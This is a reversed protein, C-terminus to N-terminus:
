KKGLTGKRKRIELGILLLYILLGAISIMIGVHFYPLTYILDITHKGPEILLGMFGLNALLLKAEKGDVTAIWGDDYPISFFLLKKRAPHITGTIHSQRFTTIAFTDEKMNAIDSFHENFTYNKLTDSLSLKKLDKYTVSEREVAVFGKFLMVEKGNPSIKDFEGSPIYADYTFGLPLFHKNRMVTVDGFRAISDYMYQYYSDLKQRTLTYKFSAFTLLMPRNILGMSWRTAYEDNPKIVAMRTLFNIYPLQNLSSYSPSGFYGQIQADNLSGHIATGSFYTKNVRYFGPDVSKLYQVADVSYDNFGTKRTLEDVPM